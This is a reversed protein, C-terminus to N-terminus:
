DKDYKHEAEKAAKRSAEAGESWLAGELFKEVPVLSRCHACMMFGRSEDTATGIIMNDIVSEILSTSITGKKAFNLGHFLAKLGPHECVASRLVVGLHEPERPPHDACEEAEERLLEGSKFIDAYVLGRCQPCIIAYDGYPPNRKVSLADIVEDGLPSLHEGKHAKCQLAQRLVRLGPHDCGPVSAPAETTEPAQGPTKNFLALAIQTQVEVRLLSAEPSNLRRLEESVGEDVMVADAAFLCELMESEKKIM